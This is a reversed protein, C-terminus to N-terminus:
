RLAHSYWQNVNSGRWDYKTHISRLLKRSPDQKRRLIAESWQVYGTLFVSDLHHLQKDFISCGNLGDCLHIKVKIM